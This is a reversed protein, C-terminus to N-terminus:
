SLTNKQKENQTAAPKREWRETLGLEQGLTLPDSALHGAVPSAVSNIALFLPGVNGLPDSTEVVVPGLGTQFGDLGQAIGLIGLHNFMQDVGGCINIDPDFDLGDFVEAVQPCRVRGRHQGLLEKQAVGVHPHFLFDQNGQSFDPIRAPCFGDDFEQPAIKVFVGFADGDIGQAVHAILM